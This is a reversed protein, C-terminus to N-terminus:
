VRDPRAHSMVATAVEPAYRADVQSVQLPIVHCGLLGAGSWKRPSLSLTLSQVADDEGRDIVVDVARNEHERLLGPLAQMAHQPTPFARLSIAGFSIIKDNVEVGATAAPSNETVVDVLAFASRRPFASATNPPQIPESRVSSSGATAVDSPPTPAATSSAASPPESPGNEGTKDAPPALAMYLYKEIEATIKEHDTRLTAYRNRQNRVGHVDIDSRPFGQADLLNGNM